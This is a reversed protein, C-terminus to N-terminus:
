DKYFTYIVASTLILTSVILITRPIEFIKDEVKEKKQELEKEILNNLKVNKIFSQASKKQETLWEKFPLNSGSEKYLQNASKCTEKEM